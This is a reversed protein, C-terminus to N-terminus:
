SRPGIATSVTLQRRETIVQVRMDGARSRRCPPAPEPRLTRQQTVERGADDMQHPDLKPTPPRRSAPDAVPVTSPTLGSWGAGRCRHRGHPVGSRAGGSTPLLDGVTTVRRPPRGKWGRIRREATRWRRIRSTAAVAPRGSKADTIGRVSRAPRVLGRGRGDDYPHHHACWVAALAATAPTVRAGCRM